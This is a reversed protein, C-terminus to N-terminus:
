ARPPPVDPAVVLSHLSTPPEPLGRGDEHREAGLHPTVAAFIVATTACAIMSACGVPMRSAPCDPPSPLSRHEGNVTGPLDSGTAHAAHTISANIAMRGQAPASTPTGHAHEPMAMGAMKGSAGNEMGTSHGSLCEAGGSQWTGQLLLVALILATFRRLVIM